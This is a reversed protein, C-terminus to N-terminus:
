LCKEAGSGKDAHEVLPEARMRQDARAKRGNCSGLPQGIHRRLSGPPYHTLSTPATPVMPKNPVNMARPLLMPVGRENADGRKTGMRRQRASNMPM